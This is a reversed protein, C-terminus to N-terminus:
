NDDNVDRNTLLILFLSRTIFNNSFVNRHSDDNYIVRRFEYIASNMKNYESSYDKILWAKIAHLTSYYAQNASGVYNQEALFAEALSLAEDFKKLYNSVTNYDFQSIM